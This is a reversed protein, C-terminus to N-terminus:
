PETERENYEHWASTIAASLGYMGRGKERQERRAWRCSVVTLAADQM